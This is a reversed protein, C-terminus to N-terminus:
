AHTTHRYSWDAENVRDVAMGQAIEDNRRPPLRAVISARHRVAPAVFLDAGHHPVCLDQIAPAVLHTAGQILQLPFLVWLHVRNVNCGAYTPALCNYSCYPSRGTQTRYRYSLVFYWRSFVTSRLLSVGRQSGWTLGLLARLRRDSELTCRGLALDPLSYRRSPFCPMRFCDHPLKGIPLSDGQPERLTDNGWDLPALCM